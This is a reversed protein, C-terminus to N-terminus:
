GESGLSSPDVWRSTGVLEGTAAYGAATVEDVRPGPPLYGIFIGLPGRRELRRLLRGPIHESIADVSEAEGEREFRLEVEAVAGSVFGLVQQGGRGTSSGVTTIPGLARPLIGEGCAGGSEPRERAPYFTILCPGRDTGYVVVEFADGRGTRGSALVTPRPPQRAEGEVPAPAVTPRDGPAAPTVRLAADSLPPPGADAQDDECGGVGISAAVAVAVTALAARMRGLPGSDGAFVM